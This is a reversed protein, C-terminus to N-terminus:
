RNFGMKLAGNGSYVWIYNSLFKACHKSFIDKQQRIQLLFMILSFQDSISYLKSLASCSCFIEEGNGSVVNLFLDSCSFLM